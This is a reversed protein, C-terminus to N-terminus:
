YGKKRGFVFLDFVEQLYKTKPKAVIFSVEMSPNTMFRHGTEPDIASDRETTDSNYLIFVDPGEGFRYDIVEQQDLNEIWDLSEVLITSFDM